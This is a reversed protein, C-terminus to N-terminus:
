PNPCTVGAPLPGLCAVLAVHQIVRFAFPGVRYDLALSSFGARGPRSGSVVLLTQADREHSAGAPEVNAPLLVYAQELTLGPPLLLEPGWGTVPGAPTGPRSLHVAQITLGGTLDVPAIAEVRVPWPWEDHLTLEGYYLPVGTRAWDTPDNGVTFGGQDAPRMDLWLPGTASPERLPGGPYRAYGAINLAVLLVAIGSVAIGGRRVWGALTMAAM